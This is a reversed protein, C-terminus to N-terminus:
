VVSKRDGVLDDGGCGDVSRLRLADLHYLLAAQDHEKAANRLTGHCFQVAVQDMIVIDPDLSVEPRGVALGLSGELKCDRRGEGCLLEHGMNKRQIFDVFPDLKGPAPFGNLDHKMGPLSDSFASGTFQYM